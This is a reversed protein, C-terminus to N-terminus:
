APYRSTLRARNDAGVFWAPLDPECDLWARVVHDAEDGLLDLLYSDLLAIDRGSQVFRATREKTTLEARDTAEWRDLRTEIEALIGWWEGETHTREGMGGFM